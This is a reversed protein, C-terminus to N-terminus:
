DIKIVADKKDILYEYMTWAIISGLGKRMIRPMLGNFLGLVGENSIIKQFGQLIGSYHQSTDHNYFKCIERTRILDLPHTITCSVVNASFSSVTSIIALLKTRESPSSNDIDLIESMRRRFFSYIPYFTGSFPVDRILSIKMGTFFGPIGENRYIKSCADSIGSYENFGIVELRTKVM